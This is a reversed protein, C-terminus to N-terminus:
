ELVQTMKGSAMDWFRILEGAGAAVLTKGNPSFAL